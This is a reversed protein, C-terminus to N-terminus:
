KDRPGRRGKLRYRGRTVNGKADRAHWRGGKELWRVSPEPLDTKVRSQVELSIARREYIEGWLVAQGYRDFTALDGYDHEEM